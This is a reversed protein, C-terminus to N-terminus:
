MVSARALCAALRGAFVGGFAIGTVGTSGRCGFGCLRRPFALYNSNIQPHRMDGNQFIDM